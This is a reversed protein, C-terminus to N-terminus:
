SSRSPGEVQFQELRELERELLAVQGRIGRLARRVLDFEGRPIAPVRCGRPRVAAPGEPVVDLLTGCASGTSM